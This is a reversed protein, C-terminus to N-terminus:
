KACSVGRSCAGSGAKSERRPMHYEGSCRTAQADNIKRAGVAAVSVCVRRVTPARPARRPRRRAACQAARSSRLELSPSRASRAAPRELVRRAEALLAAGERGRRSRRAVTLTTTWAPRHSTAPACTTEDSGLRAREVRSISIRLTGRVQGLEEGVLELVQDLLEIADIQLAARLAPSARRRGSPANSVSRAM